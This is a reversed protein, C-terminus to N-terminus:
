RRGMVMDRGWLKLIPAAVVAASAPRSGQSIWVSPRHDLLQKLRYMLVGGDTSWFTGLM